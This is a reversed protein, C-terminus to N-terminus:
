RIMLSFHCIGVIQEEGSRQEQEIMLLVGDEKSQLKVESLAKRIAFAQYYYSHEMVYEANFVHKGECASQLEKELAVADEYSALMEFMEAKRELPIYAKRVIDVIQWKALASVNECLYEQMDKSNFVERIVDKVATEFM